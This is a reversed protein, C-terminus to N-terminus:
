NDNDSGSQSPSDLQSAATMSPLITEQTASQPPAVTSDQMPSTGNGLMTEQTSFQMPVITSDQTQSAGYISSPTSPSQQEIHMMDVEEEPEVAAASKEVLSTEDSEKDIDVDVHCDDKDDLVHVKEAEDAEAVAASTEDSKENGDNNCDNKDDLVHDMEAGDAEESAATKDVQSTEDTEENGDVDSADKDQMVHDMEAENAVISEDVNSKVQVASEATVDEFTAEEEEDSSDDDNIVRRRNSTGSSAQSVGNTPARAATMEQFLDDGNDDDDDDVQDKKENALDPRAHTLALASTTNRANTPKVFEEAEVEEDDGFDAEEEEEDDQYGETGTNNANVVNTTGQMSATGTGTFTITTAGTSTTVTSDTAPQQEADAQGSPRSESSAEVELEGTGTADGEDQQQQAQLGVDLEQLMKEAQDKGFLKELHQNRAQERMGTLFSKTEKKSGLTEIKLLVDQPAMSPFIDFCFSEYANVLNRCYTAAADLKLKSSNAKNKSAQATNTRPYRIAKFELPIRILGDAGILDKEELKLAPARKKKVAKGYVDELNEDDLARARARKDGSGTGGSGAEQAEGGTTRATLAAEEAESDDEDSSFDRTLMRSSTFAMQARRRETLSAM